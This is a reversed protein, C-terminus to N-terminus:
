GCRGGKDGRECMRVMRATKIIELNESTSVKLCAARFHERRLEVRRVEAEYRLNFTGTESTKESDGRDLEYRRNIIACQEKEKEIKIM